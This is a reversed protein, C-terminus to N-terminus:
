VMCIYCCIAVTPGNTDVLHVCPMRFESDDTRRGVIKSMLPKWQAMHSLQEFADIAASSWEKGTDCGCGSQILSCAVCVTM